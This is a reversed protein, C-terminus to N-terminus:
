PDDEKEKFSDYYGNIVSTRRSKWSKMSNFSSTFEKIQNVMEGGFFSDRPQLGRQDALPFSYSMM